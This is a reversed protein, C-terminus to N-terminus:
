IEIMYFLLRIPMSYDVSSQFKLLIYFILKKDGTNARYVIDEELEEYDSLIYSKDVLILQEPHISKSWIHDTFDQILNLFIEKNSFLPKYGKNM